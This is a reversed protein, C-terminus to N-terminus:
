AAARIGIIRKVYWVAQALLGRQSVVRRRYCTSCLSVYSGSRTVFCLTMPAIRVMCLDCTTHDWANREIHFISANYEGGDYPVLLRLSGDPEPYWRQEYSPPIHEEPFKYEKPALAVLADRTPIRSPMWDRAYLTTSDSAVM